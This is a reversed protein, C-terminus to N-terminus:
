VERACSPILDIKNIILHRRKNGLLTNFESNAASLPVRADRVEIVLDIAKLQKHMEKLAKHMHGPFWTVKGAM